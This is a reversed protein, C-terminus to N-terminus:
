IIFYAYWKRRWQLEEQWFGLHICMKQDITPLKRIPTAHSYQEGEYDARLDTHADFHIIKTRTNEYVAEMVPLSVLHEGGM